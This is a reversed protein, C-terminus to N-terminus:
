GKLHKNFFDLTRQTHPTGEMDFRVFIGHQGNDAVLNDNVTAGASALGLRLGTELLQRRSMQGSRALKNIQRGEKSYKMYLATIPSRSYDVFKMKSRDIIENMYTREYPKYAFTSIRIEALDVGLEM